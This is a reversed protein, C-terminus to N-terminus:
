AGFTRVTYTIIARMTGNGLTPNSSDYTTMIINENMEVLPIAVASNLGAVYVEIGARSFSAAADTTSTLFSSELWGVTGYLNSSGIVIVQETINAYAAAGGNYEIRVKDIDYYNGAGAVPLLEIPTSGMALIQASSINVEVTTADAGPMANVQSTLVVLADDTANITTFATEIDNAIEDIGLAQYNKSLTSTPTIPM